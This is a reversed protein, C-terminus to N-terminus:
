HKFVYCFRVSCPKRLQQEDVLVLALVGLLAALEQIRGVDHEQAQRVRRGNLRYGNKQATGSSALLTEALIVAAVPLTAVLAQTFPLATLDPLVVKPLGRPVAALLAM